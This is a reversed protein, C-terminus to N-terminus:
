FFSILIIIYSTGAVAVYSSVDYVQHDDHNCHHSTRSYHHDHSYLLLLLLFSEKHIKHIWRSIKRIKTENIKVGTSSGSARRYYSSTMKKDSIWYQFKINGSVKQFNWLKLILFSHCISHYNWLTGFKDGAISPVSALISWIYNPFPAM